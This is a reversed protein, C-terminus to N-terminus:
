SSSPTATEMLSGSSASLTLAHVLGRLNTELHSDNWGAPVNGPSERDPLEVDIAVFGNEGAWHILEGTIRYTGVWIPSYRYGTVDAYAMALEESAPDPRGDAGYAPQALGTEPVASHYSIIRLEGDPSQQRLALLWSRLLLTEPESLPHPGGSGPALGDPGQADATWDSTDWNRNLDVDNANTRRDLACGDPNALPVFFLTVGAPLLEPEQSLRSLIAEALLHTNCEHAGHIAALAAYWRRGNGLRVVEIARGQVSHGLVRRESWPLPTPTSTSTAAWTPTATRTSRPTDTPSLTPTVKPKSSAAQTAEATLTIGEPSVRVVSRSYGAPSRMTAPETAGLTLTATTADAQPELEKCGAALMLICSLLLAAYRFLTQCTNGQMDIAARSL